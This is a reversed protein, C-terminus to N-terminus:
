RRIVEVERDTAEVTQPVGAEDVVVTASQKEYGHVMHEKHLNMGELCADAMASTFLRIARIADDNGPIVYDLDAPDCNTDALGVAPIRLKKAERVAIHEKRPDVIFVAGPLRKMDRIGGLYRLLKNREKELRLVEKKPLKEVSGEALLKDIRDIREVSKRITTFNTLTGGLWRETVFPMRARTAETEIVDQAQRKTGVFMVTDGRSVVRQIFNIADRFMRVTRQLNIIHIGNRAGWIYPKMKPNWRRTQHGFHVGAELMDTMTVTPM